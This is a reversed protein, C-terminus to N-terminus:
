ETYVGAELLSKSAYDGGCSRTLVGASLGGDVPLIAGNVYAAADSMLMLAAGAIDEARAMRGMPTRDNVVNDIFGQPISRRLLPTDVFGPMVANVRLGYRGWELALNRTLGQVAFKSSVYHTRGPHGGLGDISGVVVVAGRGRSIMVKGVECCSVFVGNVNVDMVRDFEEVDLGEAPKTTSVGAAAFLADIPGLEAETRRVAEATAAPDRVDLATGFARIGKGRLEELVDGIREENQDVIAVHAGDDAAMLATARGIGSAGGTVFLVRDKLGFNLM